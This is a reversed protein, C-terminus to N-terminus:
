YRAAVFVANSSAYLYHIVEHISTALYLTYVLYSDFNCYLIYRTMITRFIVILLEFAAVALYQLIQRLKTTVM